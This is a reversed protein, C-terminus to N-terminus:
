SRVGKVGYTGTDAPNSLTGLKAMTRRPASALPNGGARMRKALELWTKVRETWKVTTGGPTDTEDPYQAFRTSLAEALLAVAENFSVTGMFAVIEEDTLLFVGGDVGTDGLLLRAKDKPTSATTSYTTAM